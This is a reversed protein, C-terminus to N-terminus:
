NKMADNMTPWPNINLVNSKEIRLLINGDIEILSIIPNKRVNIQITDIVFAKFQISPRSPRAAPMVIMEHIPKKIKPIIFLSKYEHVKLQIVM